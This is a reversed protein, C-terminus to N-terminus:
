AYPNIHGWEKLHALMENAYWSGSTALDALLPAAEPGEHMAVILAACERIFLDHESSHVVQRLLEGSNPISSIVAEVSQGLSGRSISNEPDILTLLKVVEECRLGAILNRAYERTALTLQEGSYFIDPHGPVHALFYILHGPIQESPRERISRVFEDWVQLVNPYKRFLVVTGLYVEDLKSSRVLAFAEDLALSPVQRVLGPVFIKTFTTEDFRNAESTQYRITTAQPNRKLYHKIDVWHATKISPVYVIGYVPLRHKSWYERHDGIPFLCEGADTNYYSQGSKVQVAIQQNLPRGDQILEILANIGLDNEQEIKIFLSGADEVVTRVHNVGRKATVASKPYRPM